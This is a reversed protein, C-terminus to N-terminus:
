HDWGNSKMANKLISRMEDLRRIYRDMPGGAKFRDLEWCISELSRFVTGLTAVRQITARDLHAWHRRVTTWYETLCPSAAFGPFDRLSPSQALDTAPVGVGANEWDVALLHMNKGNM